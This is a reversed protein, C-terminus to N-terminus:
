TSVSATEQKIYFGWKDPGVLWAVLAGVREKIKQAHKEEKTEVESVSEVILRAVACYM